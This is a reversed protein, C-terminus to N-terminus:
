ENELNEKPYVSERYHKPSLGYANKFMKSFTLPDEYGIQEAIAQVPLNTACLLRRGEELRYNVLYEQPSVKLKQKFIHTLYSRTIGIYSAIDRIQMNAYHEHIYALAHNVYLDPAYDLEPKQNHEIQNQRQSRILLALVEYLLATRTLEDIITLEHHNLIKETYALFEEPRIYMDRIPHQATIGAKELYLAAKSGSFSVWTYYWPDEPDSFYYIEIDPPTVFIQGRHLHYTNTGVKLTGKGSLVFHLHFDDRIMPGYAKDPACREIGCVTLFLEPQNVPPSGLLRYNSGIRYTSTKFPKPAEILM